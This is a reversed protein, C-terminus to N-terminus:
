RGSGRPSRCAEPTGIMGASATASSRGAATRVVVHGALAPVHLGAALRLREPEAAHRAHARHWGSADLRAHSFAPLSAARCALSRSSPLRRSPAAAPSKTRWASRSGCGCAAVVNPNNVQFGSGMLSETYDVELRRRLAPQRTSSSASATSDFVQDDDPDRGARAPVPLRLLRRGQRGRAPGGRAAGPDRPLEGVKKPQSTPSLSWRLM